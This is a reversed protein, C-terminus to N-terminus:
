RLVKKIRNPILAAMKSGELYKGISSIIGVANTGRKLQILHELFGKQKIKIYDQGHNSRNLAREINWKTTGNIFIWETKQNKIKHLFNLTENILKGLLNGEEKNKETVEISVPYHNIFDYINLIENLSIKKGGALQNRLSHLNILVDTNPNVIGCDIFIGFGVKGVDIMNGKIKRGEEIENFNQIIGIEKELLKAVFKEDPGEILIQPRNDFNRIKNIKVKTETFDPLYDNLYDSYANEIRIKDSLIDSNYIKDLLVLKVPM